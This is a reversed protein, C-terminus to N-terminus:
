KSQLSFLACQRAETDSLVWGKIIHTKGNEFDSHIKQAIWQEWVPQQPKEPPTLATLLKEPDNEDPITTLWAQGISRITAEDCLQSLDHPHYVWTPASTSTNSCGGFPLAATIVGTGSIWLFHRRKM